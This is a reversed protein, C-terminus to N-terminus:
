QVDKYLMYHKERKVKEWGNNLMARGWIIQIIPPMWKSWVSIMAIDLLKMWIFRFSKRKISGLDSERQQQCITLVKNLM